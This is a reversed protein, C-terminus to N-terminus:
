TSTVALHINMEMRNKQRKVVKIENIDRFFPDLFHHFSAITLMSSSRAVHESYRRKKMLHHSAM